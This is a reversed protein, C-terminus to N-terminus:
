VFLLFNRKNKVIDRLKNKGTQSLNCNFLHIKKLIQNNEFMKILYNISLDTMLNNGSLYLYELTRNYYALIHTLYKIGQDDIKNGFLSLTRLTQNTYLMESLYEMGKSTIGNRALYLEKLTTNSNSLLRSLCYVGRDFLLNDNLYLKILTTNNFLSNSLILVGQSTIQCNNLWLETSQKEILEQRVINKMDNNTIQKLKIIKQNFNQQINISQLLNFISNIEKLQISYINTKEKINEIIQFQTIPFLLIMEISPYFLHKSIDKSSNSEITFITRISNIKLNLKEISTTCLIFDWWIIKENKIYQKSIDLQIGRYITREKSPLHFLATFLLKLYLFWPKLKERENTQLIKNLVFSLCQNYPQWRMTCLMISASQDITLNDAPNQCKKKVIYVYTQISPLFTMLPEVAIELPVIPMKEYAKALFIQFSEHKEDYVNM